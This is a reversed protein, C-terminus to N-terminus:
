WLINNIRALISANGFAAEWWSMTQQPSACIDASEGCLTAISHSTALTPHDPTSTRSGAAPKAPPKCSDHFRLNGHAVLERLLSKSPKCCIVLDSSFDTPARRERRSYRPNLIPLPKLHSM